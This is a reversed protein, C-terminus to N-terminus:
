DDERLAERLKEETEAPLMTYYINGEFPELAALAADPDAKRVVFFLASTGPELAQSVDDIFQQDVVNSM